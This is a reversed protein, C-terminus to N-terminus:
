NLGGEAKVVPAAATSRFYANYIDYVLKSTGAGSDFNEVAVSIAIEPNEAPAYSIMFSNLYEAIRGNVKAKSQATGTKCAVSYPLTNIPALRAGDRVMGERVIRLTNSSIGTEEVIEGNSNDLVVEGSESIVKKVLHAKYRHGGNALTAAYNCLQVPTLLTDSQGIAAQVTDGDFWNGGHEKRYKPSALVGKSESVELGTKDSLGFKAQYKNMKEMGLHFGVEYFFINCSRNLAEKVDIQGHTGVCKFETDTFRQYIHTCNFTTTENIVGEELAACAVAPKMTSGPEYTSQFARNWLPKNKQSSLKSFDKIYNNIDYSPYTAAALVGGTKVNIVVAAGVTPLESTGPSTKILAELANQVDRQFVSNLTLVVSNGSEANKSIETRYSGSSSQATSQIGNTGRLYKEMASEIGFKGIEDDMSYARLSLQEKEVESLKKDANAAKFEENKKQYETANLKGTIGIIHPAVDGNPYTRESKSRITIGNESGFRESIAASFKGTCGRAFTYPNSVSFGQKKFGCCVAGVKLAQEKSLEGLEFMKVLADFCNQADAYANLSLCNKSKLFTIESEMDSKFYVTGNQDLALPMENIWPVGSEDFVNILGSIIEIRKKQEKISPFYNGDIIVDYTISNIALPVGYEDYINGRQAKVTTKSESTYLAQATYKAGNKIQINFLDSIIFVGVFVSAAVSAAVRRKIINKYSKTM